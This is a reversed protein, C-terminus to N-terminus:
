IVYLNKIRVPPGGDSIPHGKELGPRLQFTEGIADVNFLAKNTTTAVKLDHIAGKIEGNEVYYAIEPEIVILNGRLEASVLGELYLGKRMDSIMEELKWDKPVLYLNSMLARPQHTIGHASGNPNDGFYAASLRTHLLNVVRGNEVLTKRRSKVGEDDFAYSGYASPILPDDIVTVDEDGIKADKIGTAYGGIEILRDGELMHGVAEHILAGAIEYNLVAKVRQGKFVPNIRSANVLQFARLTVNESLSNLQKSFILEIGSTAGIIGSATSLRRNAGRVVVYFLIDTTPKVEEVDIGDSTIIHKKQKKYTLTIESWAFHSGLLSNAKEKMNYFIDLLESTNTNVPTREERHSFVSSYSRYNALEAIGSYTKIPTTQESMKIAKIIASEIKGKDMQPTVVIGWGKDSFVRVVTFRSFDKSEEVSEVRMALTYYNEIVDIVTINKVNDKTSYKEILKIVESM